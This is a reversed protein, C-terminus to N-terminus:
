GNVRRHRNVSCNTRLPVKVHRDEVHFCSPLTCSPDPGLDEEGEIPLRTDKGRTGSVTGRCPQLRTFVATSLKPCDPLPYPTRLVYVRYIPQGFAMPGSGAKGAPREDIQSPAAVSWLPYTGLMSRYKKESIVRGALWRRAATTNGNLDLARRTGM